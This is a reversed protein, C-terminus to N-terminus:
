DTEVTRVYVVHQPLVRYIGDTTRLGITKATHVSDLVADETAHPDALVLKTGDSLGIEVPM